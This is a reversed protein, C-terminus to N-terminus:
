ENNEERVPLGRAWDRCSKSRMNEAAQRNAEHLRLLARDAAEKGRGARILDWDEQPIEITAHYHREYVKGINSTDISGPTPLTVRAPHRGNGWWARLRSLITMVDDRGAEATEGSEAGEGRLGPGQGHGEQRRQLNGCQLFDVGDVPARAAFGNVIRWEIIAFCATEDVHHVVGGGVAAAGDRGRPQVDADDPRM